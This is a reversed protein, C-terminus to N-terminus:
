LRDIYLIGDLHDTEHQFIVATFGSITRAAEQLSRHWNEIPEQLEQLAAYVQEQTDPHQYCDRFRGWAAAADSLYDAAAGARLVMEAANDELEDWPVDIHPLQLSLM